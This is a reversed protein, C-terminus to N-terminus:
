TSLFENELKQLFKQCTLKLIQCLGWASFGIRVVCVIAIFTFILIEIGLKM